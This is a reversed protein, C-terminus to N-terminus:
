VDTEKEVENYKVLVGHGYYGNHANYVAFQLLGKDTEVNLFVAGGSDLESTADIVKKNYATDVEEIKIIEAGIFDKIDDASTIHGWSECCGQSDSILLMVEKEDTQIKFGDYSAWDGIKFGHVEEINIIKM